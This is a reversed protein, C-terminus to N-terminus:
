TVSRTSDYWNEFSPFDQGEVYSFGVRVKHHLNRLSFWFFKKYAERENGPNESLEELLISREM